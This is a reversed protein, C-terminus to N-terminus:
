GRRPGGQNPQQPGPPPTPPLGCHQQPASGTGPPPNKYSTATHIDQEIMTDRCPDCMPRGAGVTETTRGKLRGYDAIRVEAHAKGRQQAFIEDDKLQQLVPKRIYGNEESSSIVKHRQGDQDVQVGAAM